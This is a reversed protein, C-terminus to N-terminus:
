TTVHLANGTATWGLWPPVRKGQGEKGLELQTNLPPVTPVHRAVAKAM